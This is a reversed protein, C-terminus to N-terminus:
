RGALVYLAARGLLWVALAIISFVLLPGLQNIGTATETLTISAGGAVILAALGCGTWYLVQGLRATM